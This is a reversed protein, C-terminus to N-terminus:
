IIHLENKRYNYKIFYDIKDYIKRVLLKKFKIVIIMLKNIIYHMIM